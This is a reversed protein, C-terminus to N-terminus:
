DMGDGQGHGASVSQDYEPDELHVGRQISWTPPGIRAIQEKQSMLKIFGEGSGYVVSSLFSPQM